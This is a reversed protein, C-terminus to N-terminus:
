KIRRVVIGRTLDFPSLKVRVKDDPLIQIKNQRMKGSLHALVIQGSELQIKITGRIADLVIGELEIHDGVNHSSSRINEGEHIDFEQNDKKDHNKKEQMRKIEKM